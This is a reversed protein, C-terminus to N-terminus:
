FKFNKLVEKLEAEKQAIIASRDTLAMNIAEQEDSAQYFMGGMPFCDGGIRVYWGEFTWRANIDTM